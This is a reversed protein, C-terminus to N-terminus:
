IKSKVIQRSGCVACKMVSLNGEKKIDTDPKGCEHCFVFENAYQRIKENIKSAAVKTGIVLRNNRRIEGPAALEKLLFKLMHEPPRRLLNSIQLFNIIVTKKGELHGKVKPIEFRDKEFVSEPINKRARQLLEKYEM